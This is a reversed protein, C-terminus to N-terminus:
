MFIPSFSYCSATFNLDNLLVREYLNENVIYLEFKSLSLNPIYSEKALACAQELSNAQISVSEQEDSSTLLYFTYVTKGGSESVSVAEALATNDIGTSESCGSLLFVSSIVFLSLTKFIIKKRM